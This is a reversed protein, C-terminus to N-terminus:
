GFNDSIELVVLWHLGYFRKDWLKERDFKYYVLAISPPKLISSSIHAINLEKLCASIQSQTTGDDEFDYKEALSDISANPAFMAVCALGCDNKRKQAGIGWQSKYIISPANKVDEALCSKNAWGVFNFNGLVYGDEEKIQIFDVGKKATIWVESSNDKKARLQTDSITIM